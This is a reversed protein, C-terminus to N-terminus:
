TGPQLNGVNDQWTTSSSIASRVITGTINIIKISYSSTVNGNQSLSPSKDLGQLADLYVPKSNTKITLNITGVAPNPYININSATTNPTNLYNITIANSYSITGNLDEIKLR